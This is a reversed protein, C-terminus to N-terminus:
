DILPEDQLCFEWTRDEGGEGTTGKGHAREGKTMRHEYGKWIDRHFRFSRLLTYQPNSVPPNKALRPLDESSSSYVSWEIYPAVNRLTVLVTGRTKVASPSDLFQLDEPNNLIGEDEDDGDDDGTKKKKKSSPLFSPAPGLELMKAASLLFGLILVQNSLINRDQDAIGKGAHPFNWVIRDWRRGKLKSHKELRTGDVGFHVEVDKCRLFSVIGEAEPYKSYCQEETDYATATINSSPLSQLADPADQILSRAFSFNGEGVLLIKHSAAFPITPRRSPDSILKQKGKSNNPRLPQKGKSRTLKQEAVQTAHSLKEKAKLRSQQSHLAVKLNKGAKGM